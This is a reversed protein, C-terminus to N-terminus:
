MDNLAVYNTTTTPLTPFRYENNTLLLFSSDVSWNRKTKNNQNGNGPCHNRHIKGLVIKGTRWSSLTQKM